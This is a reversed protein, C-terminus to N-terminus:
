AFKFALGVFCCHLPLHWVSLLPRLICIQDVTRRGVGDGSVMVVSELRLILNLPNSKIRVKLEQFLMMEREDEKKSLIGVLLILNDRYKITVTELQIIIAKAMESSRHSFKPISMEFTNLKLLCCLSLSKIFIHNENSGKSM